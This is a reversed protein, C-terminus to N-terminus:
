VEDEVEVIIMRHDSIDWDKKFAEDSEPLMHMKLKHKRLLESSVLIYDLRSEAKVKDNDREDRSKFTPTTGNNGLEVWLDRMEVDSKFLQVFSNFQNTGRQYVNLDGILVVKADRKKKLYQAIREWDKEVFEARKKDKESLELKRKDSDKDKPNLPMHAGIIIYDNYKIAQIRGDFYVKFEDSEVNEKKGSKRYFIVTSLPQNKEIGKPKLADYNRGTMENEFQSSVYSNIYYEQFVIVDAEERDVLDLIKKYSVNQDWRRLADIHAEEFCKGHYEERVLGDKMKEFSEGDGGFSNINFSVIKM